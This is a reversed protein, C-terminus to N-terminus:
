QEEYIIEGRREGKKAVIVPIRLNDKIWNIKEKETKDLVGAMKSEVLQVEFCNKCISPIYSNGFGNSKIIDTIIDRYKFCVFDPFGTGMTMAKSFFNFKHKAPILKGSTGIIENMEVEEFEVNNQWKCVIWGKSELDHRVKLEFRNGAARSAKGRKVKNPDKM